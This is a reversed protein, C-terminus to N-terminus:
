RTSDPLAALAAGAAADLDPPLGLARASSFADRAQVPNRLARHLVGLDYLVRASATADPAQELARMLIDLAEFDHGAVQRDQAQRRLDRVSARDAAFRTTDADVTATPGTLRRLLLAAVADGRDGLLAARCHDIAGARDGAAYAELARNVHYSYARVNLDRPPGWASITFVGGTSGATLVASLSEGEGWPVSVEHRTEGRGDYLLSGDTLRLVNLNSPTRNSEVLLSWRRVPLQPFDFHLAAAEGPALTVTESTWSVLGPPGGAAQLSGVQLVIALCLSLRCAEQWSRHRSASRTMDDCTM